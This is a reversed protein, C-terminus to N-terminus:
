SSKIRIGFFFFVLYIYKGTVDETPWDIAKEM